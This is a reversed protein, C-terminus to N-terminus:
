SARVEVPWVAWRAWWVAVAMLAGWIGLSAWAGSEAWVRPLGLYPIAGGAVGSVSAPDVPVQDAVANADGQTTLSGDPNVAVVRHIVNRGESEFVVVDGAALRDAHASRVIVLDGASMGPSMSNSTVVVARVGLAPGGLAALPLLMWYVLVAVAAMGLLRTLWRAVFSRTM